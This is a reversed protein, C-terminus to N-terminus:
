PAEVASLKVPVGGLQESRLAALVFRTVEEIEDYPVLPARDSLSRVLQHCLNRYAFRTSIPQHLVAKECFATVSYATAGRRAGRVTGLRGDAWRGSVIEADDSWVATVETCGAGMLSYLVEVTHIGYHFLGPNSPSRKAPGCTLVGVIEGCRSQVSHLENLEEAYRLASGYAVPTGTSVALKLIAQADALKCAFPKDVYAPIGAELFPRVRELHPTGCLSLILVADIQGILQSPDDVLPVGAAIMEDRFGPIREPAMESTGPWGAVVRAGDVYQDPSLGVHNFRRTFEICHSSDFDVIGLRLM